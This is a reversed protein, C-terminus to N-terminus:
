KKRERKDNHKARAEAQAHAQSRALAVFISELSAGSVGYDSIKLEAKRAEISAFIQALSVGGSRQKPILYKIRGAHQEQEEAGEFLSSVFQRVDDMSSESANIEVSFGKGYKQKLQELSGLCAMRGNVMIAVRACLAECEEMSHTTLVVSMSKSLDSIVEWMFRRSVPDM